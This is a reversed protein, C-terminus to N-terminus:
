LELSSEHEIKDNTLQSDIENHGRFSYAPNMDSEIKLQNDMLYHAGPSWAPNMDFKM